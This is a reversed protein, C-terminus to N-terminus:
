KGISVVRKKVGSRHRRGDTQPRQPTLNKPVKVALRKGFNKFEKVQQALNLYGETTSLTSHGMARMLEYPPLETAGRNGFSHRLSHITYRPKPERTSRGDEDTLGAAVCARRFAHRYSHYRNAPPGFINESGRRRAAKILDKLMPVRAESFPVLRVSSGSKLRNPREEKPKAADGPLYRDVISISYNRLQIDEVKLAQAESVRLGTDAILITIARYKDDLHRLFLRFDKPPMGLWNPRPEPASSLALRPLTPYQEEAVAKKQMWAWFSSIALFDRNVTSHSVRKEWRARYEKADTRQRRYEVSWRYSLAAAYIPDGDASFEKRDIDARHFSKAVQLWSTAYRRRTEPGYPRADRRARPPTHMTLNTLWEHIFPRLDLREPSVSQKVEEVTFQRGKAGVAADAEGLGIKGRALAELVDYREHHLLNQLVARASKAAARTDKTISVNIRRAQRRVRLRVRFTNGRQEIPLERSRRPEADHSSALPKRKRADSIGKKANRKNGM